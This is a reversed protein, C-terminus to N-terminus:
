RLRPSRSFYNRVSFGPLSSVQTQKQESCSELFAACPIYRHMQSATLEATRTQICVAHICYGRQSQVSDLPLMHLCPIKLLICFLKISSKENIWWYSHMVDIPAVPKPPNKQQLVLYCFSLIAWFIFGKAYHESTMFFFWYLSVTQVWTISTHSRSHDLFFFPM